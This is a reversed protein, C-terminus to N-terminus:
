RHIRPSTSLTIWTELGTQRIRELDGPRPGYGLRNLAHTIAEDESLDTIPLRGKWAADPNKSASARPPAAKLWFPVLLLAAAVLAALAKRLGRQRTNSAAASKNPAQHTPM